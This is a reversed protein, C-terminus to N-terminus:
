RSEGKRKRGPPRTPPQKAPRGRRPPPAEAAPKLFDDVRVGLAAALAAATSLSPERLGQEFRTVASLHLGAGLALEQQTLGARERLERLRAAFANNQPTAM